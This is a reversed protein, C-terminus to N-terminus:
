PNKTLKQKALTEIQELQGQLQAQDQQQNQLEELKKKRIQDLESM